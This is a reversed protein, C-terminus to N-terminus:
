GAPGRWRRPAGQYKNYASATWDAARGIKDGKGFPAFPVDNLSPPVTSPGWGDANDAVDPVQFPLPMTVLEWELKAPQRHTV